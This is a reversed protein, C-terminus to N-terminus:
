HARECVGCENRFVEITEKMEDKLWQKLSPKLCSVCCFGLKFGNQPKSSDCESSTESDNRTCQWDLLVSFISYFCYEPCYEKRSEKCIRCRFTCDMRDMLGSKPKEPANDVTEPSENNHAHNATDSIRSFRHPRLISWKPRQRTSVSDIWKCGLIVVAFSRCHRRRSELFRYANSPFDGPKGAVESPFTCRWLPRWRTDTYIPQDFRHQFQFTRRPSHNCLWRPLLFYVLSYSCLHM